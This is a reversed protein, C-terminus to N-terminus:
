GSKVLSLLPSFCNFIEDREFCDRNCHLFTNAMSSHGLGRSARMMELFDLDFYQMNKLLFIILNNCEGFDRVIVIWIQKPYM